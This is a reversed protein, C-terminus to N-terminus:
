CPHHCCYRNNYTPPSQQLCRSPPLLSLARNVTLEGRRNKEMASNAEELSIGDLATTLDEVKTMVDTVNMQMRDGTIFDIDRSTVMGLLKGGILGTDTVPFSSYGLEAKKEM